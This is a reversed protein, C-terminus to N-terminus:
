IEHIDIRHSETFRRSHRARSFSGAPCRDPRWSVAFGHQRLLSSRLASQSLRGPSLTCSSAPVAPSLTKGLASCRSHQVRHSPEPSVTSIPQFKDFGITPVEKDKEVFDLCFSGLKRTSEEGQSCMQFECLNVNTSKATSDCSGAM